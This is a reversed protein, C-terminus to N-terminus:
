QTESRHPMDIHILCTLNGPRPSPPPPSRSSSLSVSGTIPSARRSKTNKNENSPEKVPSPPFATTTPLLPETSSSSPYVLYPPLSSSPTGLPRRLLPPFLCAPHARLPHSSSNENAKAEIDKYARSKYPQPVYIQRALALRAALFDSRTYFDCLSTRSLRSSHRSLKRENLGGERERERESPVVEKEQSRGDERERERVRDKKGGDEERCDPSCPGARM